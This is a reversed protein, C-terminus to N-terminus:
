KMEEAIYTLALSLAEGWCFGDDQAEQIRALLEAVHPIDREIVELTGIADDYSLFGALHRVACQDPCNSENLGMRRLAQGIICGEEEPGEEVKGTFNMCANPNPRIYKAQPYKAALLIVHSLVESAKVTRM